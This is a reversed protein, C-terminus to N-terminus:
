GFRRKREAVRAQSRKYEGFFGQVGGLLQAAVHSPPLFGRGIMARLLMRGLYLVYWRLLRWQRPNMSPDARMSKRVVAQLGLGWSKYQKRLGEMDRRHEHHMLLEPEYILTRGSRIIRYFADLDGGGPLPHGTDLAEDFGGIAKLAATSFVMDAGTGLQGTSAPHIPDGYREPAYRQWVFGKGFGGSREFRVQAETELMLPLIPGTICGADPARRVAEALGDLWVRDIIADDDVYAIWDSSTEALARNRGFDLGPVPEVAYRVGPFAAAALRTGDDAPANDVVLIDIAPGRDKAGDRAAVLAALCRAVLQPRGRTCIALTLSPIPAPGGLGARAELSDLIARAAIEDRALGFVITTLDAAALEAGKEARDHWFRRVPRGRFRALVHAAGAEDPLRLSPDPDTLEVEILAHPQTVLETRWAM